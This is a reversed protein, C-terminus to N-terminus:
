GKMYLFNYGVSSAKAKEIIKEAKERSWIHIDSM